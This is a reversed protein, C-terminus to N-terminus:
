WHLNLINLINNLRPPEEELVVGLIPVFTKASIWVEIEIRSWEIM